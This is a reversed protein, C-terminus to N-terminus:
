LDKSSTLKISRLVANGGAVSIQQEVAGRATRLEAISRYTVRVGNHEVSLVGNGIATDIAGLQNYLTQLPLTPLNGNAM